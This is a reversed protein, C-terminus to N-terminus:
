CVSYIILLDCAKALDDVNAEDPTLSFTKEWCHSTITMSFKITLSLKIIVWSTIPPNNQQPEM